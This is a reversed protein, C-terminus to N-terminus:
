RCILNESAKLVFIPLQGTRAATLSDPKLFSFFLFFLTDFEDPFFEFIFKLSYSLCGCEM